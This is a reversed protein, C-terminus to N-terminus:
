LQKIIRKNRIKADIKIFSKACKNYQVGILHSRSDYISIIKPTRQIIIFSALKISYFLDHAKKSSSIIINNKIWGSTPM